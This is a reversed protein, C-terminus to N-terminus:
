SVFHRSKLVIQDSIQGAHRSFLWNNWVFLSIVGFSRLYALLMNELVM